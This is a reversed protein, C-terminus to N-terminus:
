GDADERAACGEIVARFSTDLRIEFGSTRLSRSLRRPVHFTDLPIIGRPDPSYWRIEGPAVAMPFWGSAYASLLADAAIMSWCNVSFRHGPASPPHARRGRTTYDPAEGSDASSGGADSASSARTPALAEVSSPRLSRGRGRRRHSP